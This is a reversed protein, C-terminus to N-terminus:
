HWEARGEPLPAEERKGIRGKEKKMPQPSRARTECQASLAGRYKGRHWHARGSKSINKQCDSLVVCHGGHYPWGELKDEESGSMTM